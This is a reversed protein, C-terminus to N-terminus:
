LDIARRSRPSLVPDPSRKMTDWRHCKGREVWTNKHLEVEAAVQGRSVGAAVSSERVQPELVGAVQGAVGSPISIVVHGRPWPVTGRGHSEGVRGAESHPRNSGSAASPVLGNSGGVDICNGSVPVHCSPTVLLCGREGM